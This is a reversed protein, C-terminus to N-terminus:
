RPRRFALEQYVALNPRRGGKWLQDDLGLQYLRVLLATLTIDAASFIPGCLWPGVRKDDPDSLETEIEDLISEVHSLLSLLRSRTHFVDLIDSASIAQM